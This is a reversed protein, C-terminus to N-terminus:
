AMFVYPPISTYIWMKKVEASTPPSHWSRVGAAKGRPFLGRYEYSLLNPSGWLRDPCYLFTFIRVGMPDRVGFGQDDLGYGTALGVASPKPYSIPFYFIEFRIILIAFDIYTAMINIITSLTFVHFLTITILSSSMNRTLTITYAHFTLFTSFELSNRVLLDPVVHEAM